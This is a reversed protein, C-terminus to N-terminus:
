YGSIKQAVLKAVGLEVLQNRELTLVGFIQIGFDLIQQGVFGFM